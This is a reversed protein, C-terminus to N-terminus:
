LESDPAAVCAAIVGGCAGIWAAAQAFVGLGELFGYGVLAVFCALMAGRFRHGKKGEQYAIGFCLALLMGCAIVTGIAGDLTM